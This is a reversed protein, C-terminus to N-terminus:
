ALDAAGDDSRKRLAVESTSDQVIVGAMGTQIDPRNNKRPARNM